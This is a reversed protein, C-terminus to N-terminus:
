IHIHPNKQALMYLYIWLNMDMNALMLINQYTSMLMYKYTWMLQRECTSILIYQHIWIYIHDCWFIDIYVYSGATCAHISSQGSAHYCPHSCSQIISQNCACVWIIKYYYRYIYVYVYSSLMIYPRSWIFPNQYSCIVPKKHFSPHICAVM